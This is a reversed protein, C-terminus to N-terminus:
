VALSLQHVVRERQTKKVSIRETETIIYDKLCTTSMKRYQSLVIKEPLHRASDNEHTKEKDTEGHFIKGFGEDATLM